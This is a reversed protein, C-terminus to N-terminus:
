VIVGTNLAACLIRHRDFEARDIRDVIRGAAMVMVRDCTGILEEIESSIMLIATGQDALAQIIRYVEQKAGVDIGRTPEDLILIAPPKMLWKALVVKQQNGGSLTRAMQRSLGAARLRTAETTEKARFRLASRAIFKLPTRAFLPLAVLSANNLISDDMLLGEERRNETLFAIGRRICERPSPILPQGEIVIRGSDFPDLGFLIRALETRGAGMLGAIGLLEGRHLTFSIDTLVGERSLREVELMPKLTAPAQHAPFLQDVNRGVMERILREPTYGVIPGSSVVQGDRLVLVDDCLSLVDELRHSIYIIAVGRDRLRKIIEFLRDAEPATLSTTPEDLILLRAEAGVSRAIEVLQREGPSLASVLTNPDHHLQVQELLKRSRARVAARDILPLRLGYVSRRPFSDLHLNEAISLNTFLNLEQHVFAIGAAAADRPKRPLFPEGRILMTGSDAALVGGLINMLTSKGAGNEGVLGLVRGPALSFSISKLVDVGFFRKDIARFEILPSPEAM